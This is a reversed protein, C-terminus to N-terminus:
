IPQKVPPLLHLLKATSEVQRHGLWEGVTGLSEGAALQRVAFTHRLRRPSSQPRSLIRGKLIRQCIRWASGRALHGDEGGPFVFEDDHTALWGGLAQAARPTLPVARAPHDAADRAAVWPIDDDLRVDDRRLRVAEGTRLGGGLYLLLLARERLPQTDLEAFLAREEAHLLIVPLKRCPMEAEALLEAAGSEAGLVRAMLQLYRRRPQPALDLASLMRDIHGADAQEWAREGLVRTLSRWMARYVKESAPSLPRDEQRMTDLWTEFEMMDCM